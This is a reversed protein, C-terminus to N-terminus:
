NRRRKLGAKRKGDSAAAVVQRDIVKPGLWSKTQEWLNDALGVSRKKWVQSQKM